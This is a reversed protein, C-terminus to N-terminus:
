AIIEIIRLDPIGGIMFRYFGDIDVPLCILRSHDEDVAYVPSYVVDAFPQAFFIDPVIMAYFGAFNVHRVCPSLGNGSLVIEIHQVSQCLCLIHGNVGVIMHKGITEVYVAQDLDKSGENDITVFPLPTFDILEPDDIGPEAVIDRVEELVDAPFFPNIRLSDLELFYRYMVTDKKHFLQVFVDGEEGWARVIDGEEIGPTDAVVFPGSAPDFLPRVTLMGEKIHSIGICGEGERLRKM